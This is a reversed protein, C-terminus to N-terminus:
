LSSLSQREEFVYRELSSVLRSHNTANPGSATNPKPDYNSKNQESHQISKPKHVRVQISIQIPNLEGITLLCQVSCKPGVEQATEHCCKLTSFSAKM